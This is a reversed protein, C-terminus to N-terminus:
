ARVVRDYLGVAIVSLNYESMQGARPYDAHSAAGKRMVGDPSLGAMVSLKEFHADGPSPGFRHTRGLHAIWDEPSQMVWGHGPPLGLNSEDAANVGPSGYFVADRVPQGPHPDQLSLGVTLSGYSHGFLSLHPLKHTSAVRLGDCFRALKNAGALASQKQAAKVWVLYKAGPEPGEHQPPEYDIWAICALTEGGRGALSLQKLGETQLSQAQNVMVEMSADVNTDVGPVTISIHDATDPDGIAFAAMAWQGSLLDVAMLKAEPIRILIGRIRAMAKLKRETYWLEVSEASPALRFRTPVPMRDRLEQARAELRKQEGPLQSVNARHRVECPLGDAHGVWVANSALLEERGSDSLDDWFRRNDKPLALRDPTTLM